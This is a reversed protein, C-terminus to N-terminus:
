HRSCPASRLWQELLRDLLRLRFSQDDISGSSVNAPDVETVHTPDSGGLLLVHIPLTPAVAHRAKLLMRMHNFAGDREPGALLIMALAEPLCQEWVSRFRKEARIAIFHLLTDPSIRVIGSPRRSDRDADENGMAVWRSASLDAVLHHILETKGSGLVGAVLIRVVLRREAFPRTDRLRASIEELHGLVRKAAENEAAAPPLCDEQPRDQQEHEELRRLDEFLVNALGATIPMREPLADPLFLYQGAKWGLLAVLPEERKPSRLDAEVIMGDRFYLTGTREGHSLVLAGTKQNLEFTQVLDLVDLDELRGTLGIRDLPIKKAQDIRDMVTEVREALQELPCPKTVYDDAGARRARLKDADQDKATLFIFPITRTEPDSRLRSCLEYGDMGPMSIDAVILDPHHATVMKIAELGNDAATVEYDRGQLYLTVVRRLHPEDDVVLIKAAM